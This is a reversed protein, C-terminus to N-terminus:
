TLGKVAFKTIESYTLAGRWLSQTQSCVRGKVAFQRPSLSCEEHTRVTSLKKQEM